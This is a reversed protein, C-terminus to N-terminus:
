TAGSYAGILKVAELAEKIDHVRLISAGNLLAITNLVTTGNLSDEVPIKLTKYITSKRSIGALIPKELMQFINLNKLLMFNQTINKGFGFGPDIIVDNIGAQKCEDVKKIFFDLVQRTVNEYHTQSQMTEPVGKMHMCIYPAKLAAVTPIMERDMEGGSIDNIISAGAQVTEKAVRSHYTDVSIVIESFLGTLMEIVPLLKKLEDDATMRKSEPRTSQAGIDLIHAGEELMQIAKNKISEMNVFRSGPYFSDDTINLIGMLLPKDIFLLKGKCNLSFM